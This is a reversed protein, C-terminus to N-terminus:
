GASIVAKEDGRQARRDAAENQEGLEIFAHGDGALGELEAAVLKGAGNMRAPVLKEVRKTAVDKRLEVIRKGANAQSLRDRRDVAFVRRHNQILNELGRALDGDLQPREDGCAIVM